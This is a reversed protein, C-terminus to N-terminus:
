LWDARSRAVFEKIASFQCPEDLWALTAIAMEGYWKTPQNYKLPCTSRIGM